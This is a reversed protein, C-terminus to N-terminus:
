PKKEPATPAANKQESLKMLYDYLEMLGGGGRLVETFPSDEQMEYNVAQVPMGQLMSQMWELQKYPYMKQREFEELDAKVGEAEIARQQAGAGGLMNAIQRAQDQESNFQAVAQNYADGYAKGTTQQQQRMLEANLQQGMLGARSGGFAGARAADAGIEGKKIDYQRQLAQMQPDLVQKLYPNMYGQAIGQDTISKGLNSPFGISGLGSFYQRQLPSEGATLPGKYVQYPTQALGRAKGLMETIYPAVWSSLTQEQGTYKGATTPSFASASTSLQNKSM